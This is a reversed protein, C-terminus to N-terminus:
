EKVEDLKKSIIADLEKKEDATLKTSNALKTSAEDLMVKSYAKEIFAKAAMYSASGAVRDAVSADSGPKSSVTDTSSSSNGSRNSPISTSSGKSEGVTTKTKTENTTENDSKVTGNHYADTDTQVSIGFLMATLYKPAYTIRGGFDALSSSSGINASVKKVQGSKLHELTLHMVNSGDVVDIWTQLFAGRSECFADAHEFVDNTLYYNYQTGDPAKATGNKPIPSKAVHKRYERIVQETEAIGGFPVSDEDIAPAVIPKASTDPVSAVKDWKVKSKTPTKKTTM